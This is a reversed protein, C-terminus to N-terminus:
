PRIVSSIIFLDLGLVRFFQLINVKVHDQVDEGLRIVRILLM